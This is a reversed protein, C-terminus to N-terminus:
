EYLAEFTRRRASWPRTSARTGRGSGARGASSGSASRRRRRSTSRSPRARLDHLASRLAREKLNGPDAGQLEDTIHELEDTLRAIERHENTM